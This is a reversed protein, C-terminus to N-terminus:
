VLVANLAGFDDELPSTLHEHVPAENAEADFRKAGVIALDADEDGSHGGNALLSVAVARADFNVPEPPPAPKASIARDLALDPWLAAVASMDLRASSSPEVVAAALAADQAGSTGFTSQWVYLDVGDVDNDYDANGDGIEADLAGLGRQWLLFDAGDVDDDVDFDATMGDLLEENTQLYMDYSLEVDAPGPDAGDAFQSSQRFGYVIHSWDEFGKILDLSADDNVDQIVLLDNDVIM